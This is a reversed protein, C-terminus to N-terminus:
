LRQILLLLDTSRMLSQKILLLLGITTSVLTLVPRFAVTEYHFLLVVGLVLCNLVVCFSVIVSQARRSWMEIGGNHIILHSCAYAHAHAVNAVSRM